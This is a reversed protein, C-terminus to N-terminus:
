GLSAPLSDSSVISGLGCRGSRPDGPNQPNGPAHAIAIYKRTFEVAQKRQAPDPSSLPCGWYAGTAMSVLSMKLREADARIQQCTAPTTDPTLEGAGFALELGDFGCAKAEELAQRIPKQGEFGGITWYNIQLLNAM